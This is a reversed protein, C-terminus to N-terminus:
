DDNERIIKRRKIPVVCGSSTNVSSSRLNYRGSSSSTSQVQQQPQDVAKRKYNNNTQRPQNQQKNNVVNSTSKVVSQRKTTSSYFKQWYARVFKSPISDELQWVQNCLLTQQDKSGVNWGVLYWNQENHTCFDKLCDDSLKSFNVCYVYQDNMKVLENKIMNVPNKRAAVIFSFDNNDDDQIDEDDSCDEESDDDDVESQVESESQDDISIDDDDDVIEGEELDSNDDIFSDSVADDDSDLLDDQTYDSDDNSSSDDSHDFQQDSVNGDDTLEVTTVDEQDDDDNMRSRTVHIKRNTNVDVIDGQLGAEYEEQKDYVSAETTLRSRIPFKNNIKTSWWHLPRGLSSSRTGPLFQAELTNMLSRPTCRDILDPYLTYAEILFPRLGVNMHYDHTRRLIDQEVCEKDNLWCAIQQQFYQSQNDRIYRTNVM